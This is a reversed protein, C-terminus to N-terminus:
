FSFQAQLSALGIRKAITRYRIIFASLLAKRRYIIKVSSMKMMLGIKIMMWSTKICNMRRGSSRM